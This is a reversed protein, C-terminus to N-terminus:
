EHFIKHQENLGQASGLSAAALATDAAAQATALRIENDNRQANLLDLLSTGGKEYAYTM